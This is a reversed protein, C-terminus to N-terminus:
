ENGAGLAADIAADMATGEMYRPNGKLGEPFRNIRLWRYREADRQLSEIQRAQAAIIDERRAVKHMYYAYWSSPPADKDPVPPESTMGTAEPERMAAFRKQQSKSAPAEPNTPPTTM